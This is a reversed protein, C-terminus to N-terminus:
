TLSFESTIFEVIAFSLTFGSELMVESILSDDLLYKLHFGASLISFSLVIWFEAEVFSFKLEFEEMIDSITFLGAYLSFVKSLYQASKLKFPFVPIRSFIIGEKKRLM